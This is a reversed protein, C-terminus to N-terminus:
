RSRWTTSEKSGARNFDLLGAYYGLSEVIRLGEASTLSSDRSGRDAKQMAEFFGPKQFGRRDRVSEYIQRFSASAPLGLQRIALYRFRKWETDVAGSAAGASKYLAGLTEVFELPSLRSETVPMRIPGTRRGFALLLALYALGAQLLAWGVPTGALYSPLTRREGHYYEDWLIRNGGPPGISNLLFELNGASRIGGNALPTSGAWWIIRGDGLPYTVAVIDGGNAYLPAAGVHRGTWHVSAAMTISPAGRTFPSVAVASYNRTVAALPQVLEEASKSTGRPLFATSDLGICLLRGGRRVFRALHQQDIDSEPGTMPDSLILVAGDPEEPLETLPQEWREIPYGLGSLLTYAAKAGDAGPSFSSSPPAPAPQPPAVLATAAILVVMVAAAFILIKRDSGDLAIQM